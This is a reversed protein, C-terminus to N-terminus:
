LAALDIGPPILMQDIRLVIGNTADLEVTSVNAQNVRIGNVTEIAIEAGQLTELPGDTLDSGRLAGEVVHYSVIAKLVDKNEPLLLKGVVGEPLSEIAANTPVFLTFPGQNDLTDVLEAATVAAVFIGLEPDANAVALVGGSALDETDVVVTEPPADTAPPADTELPVETTPLSTEIVSSESAAPTSAPSTAGATSASDAGPDSSGCASLVIATALASILLSKSKM